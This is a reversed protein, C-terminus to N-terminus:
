NRAQTQMLVTGYNRGGFSIGQQVRGTVAVKAGNGPIGFNQSVVWISGTGDDVQFIGQGMAGLSGSAQGSITIEKNVFRAPDRNVDAISTYTNCGAVSLLLLVVVVLWWRTSNPFM